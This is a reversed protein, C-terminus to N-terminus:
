YILPCSSLQARENTRRLNTIAASVDSIDGDVGADFPDFGKETVESIRLLDFNDSYYGECATEAFEPAIFDLKQKYILSVINWTKWARNIACGYIKPNDSFIAGLMSEFDLYPVPGSPGSMSEATLDRFGMGQMEFFRLRNEGTFIQLASGRAGIFETPVAPTFSEDGGLFIFRVNDELGKRLSMYDSDPDVDYQPADFNRNLKVPLSINLQRHIDGAAEVPILIYRTKPNTIYLFTTVKFPTNWDLTWTLLTKGELHEPAFVIRNGLRQEVDGIYYDNCAFRVAFKPTPIEQVTGSSVRAGVLITNLQRTLKGSVKTESAGKQKMVIVTFFAIILAGVILIFIWNFQTEPTQARKHKFLRTPSNYM